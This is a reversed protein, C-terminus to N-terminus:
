AFDPGWDGIHSGYIEEYKWQLRMVETESGFGRVLDLSHQDTITSPSQNIDPERVDTKEQCIKLIERLKRSNEVTSCSGRSWENNQSDLTHTVAKELVRKEMAEQKMEWSCIVATERYCM